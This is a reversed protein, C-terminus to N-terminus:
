QGVHVKGGGSETCDVDLTGTMEQNLSETMEDALHLMFNALPKLDNEGVCPAPICGDGHSDFKSDLSLGDNTKQSSMAAKMKCVKGGLKACNDKDGIKVTALDERKGSHVEKYFAACEASVDKYLPTLLEGDEYLPSQWPQNGGMMPPGGEGGAESEKEVGSEAHSDKLAVNVTDAEESATSPSPDDHTLLAHKLLVSGSALGVLFVRM